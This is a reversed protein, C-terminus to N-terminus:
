KAPPATVTQLAAAAFDADSFAVDDDSRVGEVKTSAGTEHDTITFDVPAYYGSKGRMVKNTVITKALKDGEGYLDVRMAALRSEDIWTRVRRIGAGTPLSTKSEVVTCPINGQKENAVIEHSSWDLFAAVADDISFASGFVGASRDAPKLAQASKGPVYSAGSVSGSKVHLLLGEGKRDKPFLIQYLSQSGGGDAPRWKMQVQLVSRPGSAPHHEMRLRAYLSIKPKAAKLGAILEAASYTKPDAFATLPLLIAAVLMALAAKM